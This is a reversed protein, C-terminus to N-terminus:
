YKTIMYKHRDETIINKEKDLVNQIILENGLIHNTTRQYDYVMYKKRQKLTLKIDLCIKNTRERHEMEEKYSIIKDILYIENGVLLNNLLTETNM